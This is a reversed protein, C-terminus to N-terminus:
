NRSAGAAVTQERLRKLRSRMRNLNLGASECVVPFDVQDHFLYAEAERKTTLGGSMWDEVASLVVAQWLRTEPGSKRNIGVTKDMVM